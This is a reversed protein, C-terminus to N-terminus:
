FYKIKRYSLLFKNGFNCIKDLRNEWFYKKYQKIETDQTTFVIAAGSKYKVEDFSKVISIDKHFTSSIYFDAKKNFIWERGCERKKAM